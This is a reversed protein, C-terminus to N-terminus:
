PWWRLVDDLARLCEEATRWGGHRVLHPVAATLVTVLGPRDFGSLLSRLPPLGTVEQQWSVRSAAGAALAAATVRARGGEPAFRAAAPLARLFTATAHAASDTFDRGPLAVQAPLVLVAAACLRERQPEDLEPLVRALVDPFWRLDVLTVLLDVLREREETTMARALLAVPHPRALAPDVVLDAFAVRVADRRAQGTLRGAVAALPLGRYRADLDAAAAHVGTVRDAAVWPATMALYRAFRHDPANRIWRDQAKWFRNSVRDDGLESGLAHWTDLADDDNPLLVADHLRAHLQATTFAGRLATTRRAHGSDAPDREVPALGAAQRLLRVRDEEPVATALAIVVDARDAPPLDAAAAEVRACLAPRRARSVHGLLAAPLLVHPRADGIVEVADAAEELAEEDTM